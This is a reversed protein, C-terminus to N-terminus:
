SLPYLGKLFSEKEWPILQGLWKALAAVTTVRIGCTIPGFKQRLLSM